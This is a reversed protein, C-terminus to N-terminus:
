KMYCLLNSLVTKLQGTIECVKIGMESNNWCHQGHSSIPMYCLSHFALFQYVVSQQSSTFQINIHITGWLMNTNLCINKFKFKTNSNLEVEFSNNQM